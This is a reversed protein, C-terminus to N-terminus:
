QQTRIKLFFYKNDLGNLRTALESSLQTSKLLEQVPKFFCM